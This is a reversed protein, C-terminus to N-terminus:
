RLCDRRIKMAHHHMREGRRGAIYCIGPCHGRYGTYAKFAREQAEEGNLIGSSFSSM